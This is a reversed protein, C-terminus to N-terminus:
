PVPETTALSLRVGLPATHSACRWSWGHETVGASRALAVLVGKDRRLPSRLETPQPELEASTLLFRESHCSDRRTEWM